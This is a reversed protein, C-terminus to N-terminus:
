EITLIKRVEAFLEPLLHNNILNEVNKNKLHEKCPNETYHSGGRNFLEASEKLTYITKMCEMLQWLQADSLVSEKFFKKFKTHGDERGNFFLGDFHQHSDIDKALSPRTNREYTEVYGAGWYWKCNWSADELWYKVGDEAIGLLYVDKGFAHEQRKCLKSTDKSSVKITEKGDDNTITIITKTTTIIRGNEIKTSVTDEAKRKSM